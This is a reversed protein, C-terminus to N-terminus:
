GNDALQERTHHVLARVARSLHEAPAADSDHMLLSVAEAFAIRPTLHHEQELAEQLREVAQEAGEPLSWVPAPPVNEPASAVAALLESLGQRKAAVVVRVPVGLATELAAVDFSVGEKAASDTMTLAVVMPLGIDLLQSTLYLNRELNSADVVNLIVDPAPTDARLGMLVERAIIEDP